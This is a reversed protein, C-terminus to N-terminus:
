ANARGSLDLQEQLWPLAVFVNFPPVQSARLGFRGFDRESLVGAVELRLAFSIDDITAMVMDRPMLSPKEVRLLISDGPGVQLQAALRENVFAQGAAPAARREGGPSLEFFREDIGFVDVIGARANRAQIDQNKAIGQLQLLPAFPAIGGLGQQLRDALDAPFYRDRVVLAGAVYGIRNQAQARLSLRVSDGVALAGVLVATACAAGLLVGLHSRWFYRLSRWVLGTM